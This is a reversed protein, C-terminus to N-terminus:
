YGFYGNATETAVEPTNVIQAPDSQVKTITVEVEKKPEETSVAGFVSDLNDKIVKLNEYEKEGTFKILESKAENSFLIKEKGYSNAIEDNVINMITREIGNTFCDVLDKTRSSIDNVISRAEFRNKLEEMSSEGSNNLLDIINM